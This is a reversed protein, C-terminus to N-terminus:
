RGTIKHAQRINRLTSPPVSLTDERLVGKRAGAEQPTPSPNAKAIARECDCVLISAETQIDRRKLIAAAEQLAKAHDRIRLREFDTRAEALAARARDVGVVITLDQPM